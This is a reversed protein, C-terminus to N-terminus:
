KQVIKDLEDLRRIKILNAPMDAQKLKHTHFYPSNSYWIFTTEPIKIALYRLMYIDDDVMYRIKMKKIVQEKFFHPQQDGLNILLFDKSIPLGNRKLLKKTQSELFSYRGSLIVITFKDKSLKKILWATNNKIIPRLFRTHSLQRITKQLKSNPSKYVLKKEHTKRYLSNVFNAPIIPPKGVFIGDLDIAILPKTNKKM